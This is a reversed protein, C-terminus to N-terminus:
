PPNVNVYLFSVTPLSKNDLVVVLRFEHQGVPERLIAEFAPETKEFPGLKFFSSNAFVGNDRVQWSGTLGRQSNNWLRITLVINGGVHGDRRDSTLLANLGEPQPTRLVAPSPTFVAPTSETIPPRYPEPFTQRLYTSLYQSANWLLGFILVGLLLRIVFKM